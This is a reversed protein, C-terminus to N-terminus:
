IFMNCRDRSEHEAMNVSIASAKTKAVCYNYPKVEIVSIFSLPEIIEDRM